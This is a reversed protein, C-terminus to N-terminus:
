LYGDTRLAKELLRIVYEPPSSQGIEWKQITRVPIGYISAFRSQSLGTKRRLEKVTVESYRILEKM